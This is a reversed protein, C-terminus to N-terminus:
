IKYQQGVIKMTKRFAELDWPSEFRHIMRHCNACLVAFDTKPNRSVKQGKLTSIPVLHHAEIYKRNPIGPYVEDFNFGCAQCAYGHIKKVKRALSPNREIRKHQRFAAYDEIVANDQEDDETGIIGVSLNEKYSLSSYLELMLRLDEILVADTALTTLEYFKAVINGVEYDASYNSQSSPRLDIQGASFAAPIEGLRSRFDVARTKLANKVASGYIRRVDTVGQNLSLYFGTFDERFLYVVYYGRQASDSVLPDLIAVWPSRAWQGQGASGEILYDSSIQAIESILEPLGKRVFAALPNAPFSQTMALPYENLITKFAESLQM